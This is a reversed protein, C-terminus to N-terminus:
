PQRGTEDGWSWTSADSESQAPRARRREFGGTNAREMPRISPDPLLTELHHQLDLAILIRIFTNLTISQGNELRKITALAVGSEQALQAQTLNRTLRIEKLKGTLFQEIQEGAAISFDIKNLRTITKRVKFRQLEASCIAL